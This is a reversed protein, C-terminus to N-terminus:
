DAMHTNKHMGHTNTVSCFMFTIHPLVTLWVSKCLTTSSLQLSSNLTIDIYIETMTWCNMQLCWMVQSRTKLYAGCAHVVSLCHTWVGSPTKWYVLLVRHACASGCLVNPLTITVEQVCLHWAIYCVSQNNEKATKSTITINM